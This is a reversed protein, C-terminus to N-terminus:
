RSEDSQGAGTDDGCSCCPGLDDYWHDCHGDPRVPCATEWHPAEAPTLEDGV